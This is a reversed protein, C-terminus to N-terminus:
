IEQFNVLVEAWLWVHLRRPQKKQKVERTVIEPDKLVAKSKCIQTWNTTNRLASSKLQSNVLMKEVENEHEKTINEKKEFWKVIALIRATIGDNKKYKKIKDVKIARLWTADVVIAPQPKNGFM